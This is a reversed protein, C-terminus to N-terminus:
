KGEEELLWQKLYMCMDLAEEYADQLANRGNNTELYHGYKNRGMEARARLDEFVCDLVRTKGTYPPTTQKCTCGDADHEHQKLINELKTKIFPAVDINDNTLIQNNCVDHLKSLKCEDCNKIFDCGDNEIIKMATEIQEKTWKESM